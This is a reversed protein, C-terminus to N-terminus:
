HAEAWNRGTGADVALPVSLGEIATMLHRVNETLVARDKEEVEFVLEDHVQMIMRANFKTQQLWADIRLMALKIIDAASGQMPANIATREAYQRLQANRSNIEPLYLRRGYLTEVYGQRRAQARTREMFDHVGPYRAFYLNMYEQAAERPVGLQKALGFASMGYILGFNIVKAARRQEESVQELKVGFVEAATAKHIDQGGEFARKLRADGSLHAMIRLEIQSYDASLLRYGAPAIFAARVRKGEDGRVPINQLNPDSSSLRGTATVAQHYRTHVRGTVPNVQEPLRDTYTSKLKSLTRQELILKPLPYDLALEQLVEEATSPQGKPTKKLVPLGLKDYLIGQLQQPSGLNFMQGAMQYAQDELQKLRAALEESHARLLAADVLVGAREIRALVPVLPMEIGSFLKELPPIKELKPWLLAHLQDIATVQEAASATSALERELYKECLSSLNHRAATSDLVYSELMVDYALAEPTVGHRALVNLAFKLDHGRKEVAPNQLLPRLADLAADSPMADNFQLRLATGTETQVALGTLEDRMYDAGSTELALTLSNVGHQAKVWNQLEDISSPTEFTVPAGEGRGEGGAPSPILPPSEGAPSPPTSTHPEGALRAPIAQPPTDLEALWRKFEMRQYLQGLAANDPARPQLDQPAIPLQVDCRITLVQKYLPLQPIAARLNEGAKGPIEHAHAVLNDLTGYQKLWKVATVPGVKPVGPVNDVADGVLALYDGIQEPTVGFKEVVGLRDLVTNTMTNILIIHGNVLQAFDKDGTSILTDMGEAAAQAALTGIVDDAEVGEISILPLGMAQIIAYLPEIQRVLEDPMPPRQAKYREFLEDRFTKGKADFVLAVYKPQTDGILKRLMNLVGYVAGTPEGRSNTLPPLAHFARYLYSSGDVLLLAPKM